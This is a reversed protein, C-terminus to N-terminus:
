ESGVCNPPVEGSSWSPELYGIVAAAALEQFATFACPFATFHVQFGTSCVCPLPM